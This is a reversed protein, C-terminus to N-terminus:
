ATIHTAPQYIPADLSRMVALYQKVSLRGKGTWDTIFGDYRHTTYVEYDLYLENCVETIFDSYDAKGLVYITEVKKPRLSNNIYTVYPDVGKLAMKEGTGILVIGFKCYEGHFNLDADTGVVRDSVKELFDILRTVEVIVQDSKPGGYVKQSLFYLEQLFIPYFAGYIDINNYKGYLESIKSDNGAQPHLYIDLFYEVVTFKEREILKSTVFLDLAQRQSSSIYRKVKPLLRTSVSWYAGHVFNLDEPDNRRLRLIAKGNSLFTKPDSATDTWEIAIKVDELYPASKATDKIFSNVRGQLDYKVYNRHASKFLNGFGALVKNLIAAWKEIKEPNSVLTFIIFVVLLLSSGGVSAVLFLILNDM